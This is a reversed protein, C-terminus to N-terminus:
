VCSSRTGTIGLSPTSLTFRTFEEVRNLLQLSGSLPLQFFSALRRALILSASFHDRSLSNFTYSPPQCCFAHTEHDRSLSNFSLRTIETSGAVSSVTIGLSPTSLIRAEEVVVEDPHQSGSLPLQFLIDM